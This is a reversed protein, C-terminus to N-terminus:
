LVYHPEFAFFAKGLTMYECWEAVQLNDTPAQWEHVRSTQNPKMKAQNSRTHNPKAQYPKTQCPIVHYLIMWPIPDDATLHPTVVQKCSVAWGGNVAAADVGRGAQSASKKYKEKKKFEVFFNTEWLWLWVGEHRHLVKSKQAEGKKM